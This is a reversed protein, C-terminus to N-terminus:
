HTTLVPEGCKLKYPVKVIIKVKHAGIKWLKDSVSDLPIIKDVKMEEFAHM